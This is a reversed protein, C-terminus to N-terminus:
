QFPEELDAGGEGLFRGGESALGPHEAGAQLRVFPRSRRTRRGAPGTKEQLGLQGSNSIAERYDLAPAHPPGLHRVSRCFGVRRAAWPLEM